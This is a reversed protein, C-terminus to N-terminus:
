QPDGGSLIMAYFRVQSLVLAFSAAFFHPEDPCETSTDSSTARAEDQYFLLIEGRKAQAQFQEIDQRAQEVQEPDPLRSQHRPRVLIFGPERVLQRVREPTLSVQWAAQIRHAMLKM